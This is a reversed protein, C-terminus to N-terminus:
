TQSGAISKMRLAPSRSIPFFWRPTESTRSLSLPVTTASSGAWGSEKDLLRFEAWLDMLGNSSPTGTLGVVRKVKPRVKMLARFRKAQHSKFSSLEDIVVMDYDFPLGSQTILWAVNERNILYVDVNQTLAQIREQETGIAVTFTLGRLHDWKEIEMPWSFQAVRLPAIVLVKRVLFSDLCLEFIATLTIVSKGMGMALLTASVPHDLIFRTAYVQYDHPTYKM